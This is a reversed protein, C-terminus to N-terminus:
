DAIRIAVETREPKEDPGSLYSEYRSVFGDGNPDAFRDWELGQRAGWELLEANAQMLGDYSGTYILSAYRGAPLDGNAMGDATPLPQAVPVGVEVDLLSEMDIVHYRIFPPGEETVGRQGLWAFLADISRPIFTPLESM